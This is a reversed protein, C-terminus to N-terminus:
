RDGPYQFRWGDGQRVAVTSDGCAVAACVRELAGDDAVALADLGWGERWTFGLVAPDSELALSATSLTAADAQTIHMTRAGATAGGSRRLVDGVQSQAPSRVLTLMESFGLARHRAESAVDALRATTDLAIEIQLHENSRDDIGNDGNGAWLIQVGIVGDIADLDGALAIRDDNLEGVPSIAVSRAGDRLLVGVTGDGDWSRLAESVGDALALPEVDGLEVAYASNRRFPEAALREAESVAAAGPLALLQERFSAEQAASLVVGGVFPVGALLTSLAMAGLVLFGAIGILLGATSLLWRM